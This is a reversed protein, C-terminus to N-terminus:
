LDYLSSSQGFVLQLLKLRLTSMYIREFTSFNLSTLSTDSGKVEIM